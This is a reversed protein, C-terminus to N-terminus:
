KKEAITVTTKISMTMGNLTSTATGETELTKASAKAETETLNDQELTTVQTQPGMGSNDPTITSVTTITFIWNKKVTLEDTSCSSLIGFLLVTSLIFIAKKM